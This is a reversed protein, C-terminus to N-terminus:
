TIVLFLFSYGLLVISKSYKIVLSDVKHNTNPKISLDDKMEKLAEPDKLNRMSMVIFM